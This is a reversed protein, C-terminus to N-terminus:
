RTANRQPWWREYMAEFAAELARALGAGDCLESARMQERQTARIQRRGARDRALAVALRVYDEADTAIWEPRGLGTLLSAAQRGALQDGALTVLPCGMWLADFGTTASNFPVSDLAVDLRNYYDMHEAWSPVWNMFAVREGPIGHARLTDLIRQQTIHDAGKNSKLALRAEPLAHLVKAWLALSAERAKVLNNFSGVWLQGDPDPWWRPEPAEELPEYAYRTRPLRWVQETFHADHEPPVLVADAIFYDMQSLGTTAFYGIYHCQVPASRQAIVGLRRDADHGTTDILIDIQDQRIRAAAQRDTLGTLPTWHDALDRFLQVQHDQDRRRRSPYMWVEFRERDLARLWPRLFYGVPHQGLEASLLGLRLKRGPRPAVAFVRTRTEAREAESLAATEWEEAMARMQAPPWHATFGMAVLMNSRLNGSHPDLSLAKRYAVESEDLAGSEMLVRAYVQYIAASEPEIRRAETLTALAQAYDRRQAQSSALSLLVQWNDPQLAMVQQYITEAREFANMGRLANALNVLLLPSDPKQELAREFCEAAEDFRDLVGLFTGLTELLETREPSRHLAERHSQEAADLWGLGAQTLGLHHWADSMEPNLAIARQYAAVAAELQGLARLVQGHNYHVESREPWRQTFSEALPLAADLEGAELHATLQELKAVWPAPEIAQATQLTQQLQQLGASGGTADMAREVAALAEAVQNQRLHLEILNLWTNLDRPHKKLAREIRQRKKDTQM